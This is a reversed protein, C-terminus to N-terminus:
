AAVERTEPCCAPTMHEGDDRLEIAILCDSEGLSAIFLECALCRLENGPTFPSLGTM